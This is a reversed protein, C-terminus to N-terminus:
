RFSKRLRATKERLLMPDHLLYRLTNDFDLLHLTANRLQGARALKLFHTDAHQIDWHTVAAEASRDLYPPSAVPEDGMFLRFAAAFDAGFWHGYAFWKNPRPDVEILFLQGSARDRLATVTAFGHLQPYRALRQLMDAFEPLRPLYRRTTSPGLTVDLDVSCVYQLLQGRRFLAEASIVEGDIYRQALLLQTFSHGAVYADLAARDRFVHVGRGASSYNVKTVLPLGLRQVADEVEGAHRIVAFEPTPIGLTRCYNALVAKGMLPLAKPERIPLLHTLEKVPKMSIRWLLPDEGVLIYAYAGARDLEILQALLTDASTGADIWRDLFSSHRCISAEPCLIDVAYGAASILSPLDALNEWRHTVLLVRPRIETSESVM